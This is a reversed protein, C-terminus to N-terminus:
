AFDRLLCTRAPHRLKDLARMEIQRVRERSIGFKRGIRELTHPDDNDIGFRLRVVQEERESLSGLAEDIKESLQNQVVEDEPFQINGDEIFNILPRNSEPGVLKDLSVTCCPTQCIKELTESPVQMQNAIDETTPSRGLKQEAREAARRMIRSSEIAHVPLRITRGCNSIARSISQRIWWYAYTSFRYGRQYEFRDTAEMLGMNGEQILDSESLAPNAAVYRKAISLVLRLNAEIIRDKASNVFRMGDYMRGLITELYESTIGLARELEPLLNVAMNQAWGHLVMQNTLDLETPQEQYQNEPMQLLERIQSDTIGKGPDICAIVSQLLSIDRAIAEMRAVVEGVSNTLLDAGLRTESIAERVIEQGKEMQAFLFVEDEKTLLSRGCDERLYITLSREQGYNGRPVTDDVTDSHQDLVRDSISLTPHKNARIHACDGEIAEYRELVHLEDLIEEANEEFFAEEILLENQMEHEEVALKQARL